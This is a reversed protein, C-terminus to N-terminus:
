KNIQKDNTKDKTLLYNDIRECIENILTGSLSGLILAKGGSILKVTCMTMTTIGALLPIAYKLIVSRKKEKTDAASVAICTAGVPIATGIAVDTLASGVSLDRVKDTYEFGESHVAKNLSKIAKQATKKLEIYESEPLLHKYATLLEEIAGKKDSNVTNAFKNLLTRIRRKQTPSYNEDKIINLAQQIEENISNVIKARTSAEHEGSLESYNKTLTKLTKIIGRSGENNPNVSKELGLLVETMSNVTDQPSHTIVSKRDSLNKMIKTKTGSVIKEPVFTTWEDVDGVFGKVDGYINDYVKNGLGSFNKTLRISRKELQPESFSRIFERKITSIKKNLTEVINQDVEAGTQSYTGSSLKKNAAEFAANMRNIDTEATKYKSKVTSFSMKQFFRTIADCPKQLGCKQRIWKNFFADKIPTINYFAGRAMNAYKNTEQLFSLYKGEWKSLSPKEKITEIREAINDILKTMVSTASKSIKGRTLGLTLAGLVLISGGITLATKRRQKSNQNPTTVTDVITKDFDNISAGLQFNSELLQNPQGAKVVPTKPQNQINSTQERKIYSKDVGYNAYSGSHKFEQNFVSNTSVFGEM